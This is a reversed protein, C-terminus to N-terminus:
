KLVVKYGLGRVTQIEIDECNLKERIRKVHTDVTRDLSESDYGWIEDLLQDRTFIIGPNSALKYLLLFEKKTLEVPIGGVFVGISPFDLILSKHEIRNESTIRYRRLLAKIRLILEKMDVPKVMYDDSGSSFGKEKDEFSELATLMLIPLDQNTARIREALRNGDMGPMMVDTILLDVHESGFREWASTGDPCPVAEFGNQQLHLVLLRRLHPDDEAILIKFM